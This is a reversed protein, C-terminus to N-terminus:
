GGFLSFVGEGGGNLVPPPPTNERNPSGGGQPPWRSRTTPTNSQPGIPQRNSKAEHWLVKVKEWHDMVPYNFAKTHGSTDPSQAYLNISCISVRQFMMLDFQNEIINCAREGFGLLELGQNLFVWIWPCELLKGNLRRAFWTPPQLAPYRPKLKPTM